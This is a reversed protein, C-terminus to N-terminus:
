LKGNNEPYFGFYKVQRYPSLEYEEQEEARAVCTKKYDGQIMIRSKYMNKRLRSIGIEGGRM